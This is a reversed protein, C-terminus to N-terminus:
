GFSASGSRARGGKWARWFMAVNAAVVLDLTKTGDAFVLLKGLKAAQGRFGGGLAEQGLSLDLRGPSLPSTPPLPQETSSLPPPFPQATPSLAPSSDYPPAPDTYVPLRCTPPTNSPFPYNEADHKPPSPPLAESAPFVPSNESRNVAKRKIGFSKGTDIASESQTQHRPPPPPPPHLQPITQLPSISHLPRIPLPPAMEDSSRSSIMPRPPSSSRSWDNGNDDIYGSVQFTHGLDPQPLSMRFSSVDQLPAPSSTANSLVDESKNSSHGRVLKNLPVSFRKHRPISQSSQYTGGSNNINDESSDKRSDKKNARNTM